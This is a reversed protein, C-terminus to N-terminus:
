TTTEEQTEEVANKKSDAVPMSEKFVGSVVDMIRQIDSPALAKLFVQYDNDFDQKSSDLMLEWCLETGTTIPFKTANEALDTVSMGKVEFKQLIQLDIMGFKVEVGLIDIKAPEKTSLIDSIRGM